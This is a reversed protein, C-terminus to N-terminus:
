GRHSAAFFHPRLNDNIDFLFWSIFSRLRMLAGAPPVAGGAYAEISVLVSLSLSDTLGRRVRLGSSNRFIQVLHM